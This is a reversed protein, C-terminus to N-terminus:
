FLIITALIVCTIIFVTVRSGFKLENGNERKPDSTLRDLHRNSYYNLRVIISNLVLKTIAHRKEVTEFLM